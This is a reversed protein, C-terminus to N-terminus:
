ICAATAPQTCDHLRGSGYGIVKLLSPFVCEALRSKFLCHVKNLPLHHFLDSPVGETYLLRPLITCSAFSVVNANCLMIPLSSCMNAKPCVTHSKFSTSFIYMDIVPQTPIGMSAELYNAFFLRKYYTVNRFYYESHTIQITLQTSERWVNM